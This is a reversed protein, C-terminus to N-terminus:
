AGTYKHASTARLDVTVNMAAGATGTRAGAIMIKLKASTPTGSLAKSRPTVSVGTFSASSFYCNPVSAGANQVEGDVTQLIRSGGITTEICLSVARLGTGSATISSYAELVDAAATNTLDAEIVVAIPTPDINGGDDATVTGTPTGTVVIRQVTEGNADTTKSFVAALGGGAVASWNTALNGTCGTGLTGGTGQWMPNANLAGRPCNASYIEANSAVLRPWPPVITNVVSALPEAITRASAPGTHLGDPFATDKAQGNSQDVLLRGSDVAWVTRNNGQALLHRHVQQHYEAQDGSLPTSWTQANNDGRPLEAIWILKHGCAIAEAQYRELNAITYAATRLVFPLVRDNTSIIAVIIGPPRQRLWGMRAVMDGSQQSGVGYNQDPQFHLRGGTLLQLWYIIGKAMTRPALTFPLRPSSGDQSRSDGDFYLNPHQSAVRAAEVAEQLWPSWLEGRGDAYDVDFWKRLGDGLSFGTAGVLLGLPTLKATASEAKDSLDDIFKSRVTQDSDDEISFISVKQGNVEGMVAHLPGSTSVEIQEPLTSIDNKGAATFKAVKGADSPGASVETLLGNIDSDNVIEIIINDVGVTPPTANQVGFTKNANTAGERIFFRSAFLEAGTDFASMRSWAGSATVYPGNQKKDTNAWVVVFSNSTLTGDITQEGSLTVNGTTALQMSIVPKVGVSAMERVEEVDADLALLRVNLASEHQDKRARLKGDRGAEVPLVYPTLAM